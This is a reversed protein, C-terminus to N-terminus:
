PMIAVCCELALSLQQNTLIFTLVVEFKIKFWDFPFSTDFKTFLLTRFNPLTILSPKLFVATLLDEFHVSM